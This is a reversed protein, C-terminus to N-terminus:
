WDFNLALGGSVGAHDVDRAQYSIRFSPYAWKVPRWWVDAILRVGFNEPVPQDTVQATLVIPLKPIAQWKFAAELLTGLGETFGAGLVLNTSMEDGIRLRGQLGLSTFFDCDAIDETRCRGEATAREDRNGTGFQPRIMVSILDTARYELETYAYSLSVDACKVNDPDNPDGDPDALCRNTEDADIVDKPGGVGDITGFGIRMAYIPEIFRYTFSLEVQVYQDFGTEFGGDFDVYDIFMSVRSRDKRSPPRPDPRADVRIDVPRVPSGIVQVPETNDDAGRVEVFYSVGPARVDKAPIRARLYRDGDYTLTVRTYENGDEHRYYLWASAVRDPALVAFALDLPQAELVREPPRGAIPGHYAANRDVQRLQSALRAADAAPEPEEADTEARELARAQDRLSAIERRVSEAYRSGPHAALFEQWVVIREDPSKGLTRQWADRAAHADAIRAEAARKDRARAARRAAAGDGPPAAPDPEPVDDPVFSPDPKWPDVFRRSGAAVRIEDGVVVRKRVDQEGRAVCVREGAKVVVLAGVPFTDRLKKKSVPDTAVIVHMLTLETGAGVGDDAGLDIYVDPGDVRVVTGADAPSALAAAIALPALSFTWRM